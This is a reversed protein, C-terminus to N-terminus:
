DSSEQSPEPNNGKAMTNLSSRFRDQHMDSVMKQIEPNKMLKRISEIEIQRIRERSVGLIEGIEDRTLQERNNFGYRLEIVRQAQPRLRSLAKGIIEKIQEENILEWAAKQNTDVITEGYSENDDFDKIKSDYSMTGTKKIALIENLNDLSMELEEALEQASPQHGLKQTLQKEKVTLKAIKSMINVPIKISKLLSLSADINQRVRYYAFTMYCNGKRFNYRDTASLLGLYGDQALDQRDSDYLAKGRSNIFCKVLARHRQVLEDQGQNIMQRGAEIKEFDERTLPNSIHRSANQLFRITKELIDFSLRFQLFQTLFLEQSLNSTLYAKLLSALSHNLQEIEQTQDREIENNDNSVSKEQDDEESIEPDACDTEQVSSVSITVEPEASSSLTTTPDYKYCIISQDSINNKIEDLIFKLAVPYKGIVRQIAQVGNEIVLASASDQEFQQNNHDNTM